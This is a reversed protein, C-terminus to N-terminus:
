RGALADLAAEISDLASTDLSPESELAKAVVAGFTRPNVPTPTLSIEVLDISTILQRGAERAKRFFGGVSFGRLTGRAVQKFRNMADTGPEPRDVRARIWLGKGDVRAEEVEGMLQDLKHHYLLARSNSMFADLAKELAGPTMYEGDRDLGFDSAYGEIYIPGDEREVAKADLRFAWDFRVPASM